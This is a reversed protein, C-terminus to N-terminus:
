VVLGIRNGTIGPIYKGVGLTLLLKFL